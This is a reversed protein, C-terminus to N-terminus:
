TKLKVQSEISTPDPHNFGLYEPTLTFGFALATNPLIVVSREMFSLHHWSTLQPAFPPLLM